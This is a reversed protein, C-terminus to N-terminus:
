YRISQGGQARPISIVLLCVSQFVPNWTICRWILMPVIWNMIDSCLLVETIVKIGSSQINSTYKVGMSIYQCLIATLSTEFELSKISEQTQRHRLIISNDTQDGRGKCLAYLARGACIFKNRTYIDIEEQLCKQVYWIPSALYQNEWGVWGGWEMINCWNGEWIINTKALILKGLGGGWELCGLWDKPSFVLSASQAAGSPSHKFHFVLLFQAISGSNEQSWLLRRPACM